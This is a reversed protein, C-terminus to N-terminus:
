SLPDILDSTLTIPTQGTERDHKRAWASNSSSRHRRTVMCTPCGENLTYRAYRSNDKCSRPNTAHPLHRHASVWMNLLLVCRALRQSCRLLSARHHSLLPYSYDSSFHAPQQPTASESLPHTRKDRHKHTTARSYQQLTYTVLCCRSDVM